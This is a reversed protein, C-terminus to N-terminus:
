VMCAVGALTVLVGLVRRRSLAEGLFIAAFLVIFVSATENLVSAVSAHTYKYGGLWMAMSLYQGVLAAVALVGWRTPQGSGRLGARLAPSLALLLLLGAMAGAIRLLVIWWFPEDELVQKVMVIAVAMLAVALAGTALGRRLAAPDVQALRDPANVLVVGAMVLAFGLWQLPGLQEGLFMVSLLIVFPSFLNGVVGMRGAGLVNLARLYLTDAVAIGIVGSALALLISAGDLAPMPLRQLGLAPALPSALVAVTAVVLALVILNKLLCLKLPPLQEGLRKYIIVGVAWTLACGLSLAEGLGIVM